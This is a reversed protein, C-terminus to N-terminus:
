ATVEGGGLLDLRSPHVRGDRMDVGGVTCPSGASAKCAVWPCPFKRARHEPTNFGLNSRVEGPIAHGIMATLEKREEWKATPKCGGVINGIQISWPQDQSYFRKVFAAVDKADYDRLMEHWSAARIKADRDTTAMRPDVGAIFTLLRATENPDM